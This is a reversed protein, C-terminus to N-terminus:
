EHGAPRPRTLAPILVEDVLSRLFEEDVPVSEFAIQFFFMAFTVDRFVPVDRAGPPVEGRAIARNILAAHARRGAEFVQARILEALETSRRVALMIGVVLDVDRTSLATLIAQGVHMLDGRLSGTDPADDLSPRRNQIAALVLDSKGPWRRYITTKGVGARAAVSEVSMRDFGVEALLDLTADLIGQDLTADLLRGGRPRDTSDDVTTYKM